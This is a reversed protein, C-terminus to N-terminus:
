IAARLTKGLDIWYEDKKQGKEYHAVPHRALLFTTSGIRKPVGHQLTEDGAIQRWHQKQTLGYMVVFEPDHKLMEQINAVRTPRINDLEEKMTEPRQKSVSSNNAPLGSLEIVCTEGTERSETGWCNCQYDRKLSGRREADTHKGQFAMLLLMLYKWTSQLDVKGTRTNVKRWRDVGIRQHFTPCDCLGDKNLERFAEARKTFDNKESPAQGEELGIFWYPADWRGYGYCHQALERADENM